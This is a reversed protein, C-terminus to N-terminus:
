EMTLCALPPDNEEIISLNITDNNDNDDDCTVTLVVRYDALCDTWTGDGNQSTYCMIDITPNAGNVTYALTDEPLHYINWQFDGLNDGTTASGDFEVEGGPSGDHTLTIDLNGGIGGANANCSQSYVNSILFLGILIYIFKNM